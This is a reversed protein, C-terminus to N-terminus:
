VSEACVGMELHTDIADTSRKALITEVPQSQKKGKFTRLPYRETESFYNRGANIHKVTSTNVDYHEAIQSCPFLSNKLLWKIEEVEEPKLNYPCYKRIPYEENDRHHTIGFNINHILPQNVPPEFLQGIQPETLRGNKLEQIIRDVQAETIVSKHHDEGYTHPPEEGGPAVNYGNPAMTNHEIILEKERQNYNESWELIELKFNQKGYKKIATHIPSNDADNKARSIHSIFRHEPNISQGIYAKGNVINIIKYLAKKLYEQFLWRGVLNAYRDDTISKAKRTLM